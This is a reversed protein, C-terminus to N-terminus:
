IYLPVQVQKDSSLTCSIVGTASELELVAEMQRQLHSITIKQFSAPQMTVDLWSSMVLVPSRPSTGWALYLESGM